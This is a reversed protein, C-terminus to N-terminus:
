GKNYRVKYLSSLQPRVSINQNRPRASAQATASLSLKRLRQMRKERHLRWKCNANAFRLTVINLSLGPYGTGDSTRDVASKMVMLCGHVRGNLRWSGSGVPSEILLFAKEQVL